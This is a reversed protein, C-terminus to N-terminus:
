GCFIRNLTGALRLAALCLREETTEAAFDLYARSPARRPGFDYVADRLALSEAAWVGPELLAELGASDSRLRLDRAIAAVYAEISRDSWEIAHTDWLRHLNTAEGRFRLEITNGGRDEARGVHLPQHLDVVFHALFKLAEAREARGLRPDALRASFREIASLVDGEPPHAYSALPMGDAINMYHWPEADAYADESRIRDAWLGLEGLDEGGGFRSVEAVARECLLPAAARGAILHGAPGYARATGAAFLGLLLCGLVRGIPELGTM